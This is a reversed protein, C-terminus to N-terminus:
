VSHLNWAMQHATTAYRRLVPMTLKLRVAEDIEESAQTLIRGQPKGSM